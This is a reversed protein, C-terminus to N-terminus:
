LNWYKVAENFDGILDIPRKGDNNEVNDDAGNSLLLEVTKAWRYNTNGYNKLLNFNIKRDVLLNKVKNSIDQMKLIIPSRKCNNDVIDFGNNLLDFINKIGNMSVLHLVTNGNNNKINVNASKLLVENIEYLCKAAIHIATNGDNNQINVDAHKKMLVRVFDDKRLEVATHLLTWGDKDQINVDDLKDILIEFAKCCGRLVTSHLLSVDKITSNRFSEKLDNSKIYYNLLLKFVKECFYDSYISILLTAETIYAGNNLLIKVVDLHKFKVAFELATPLNRSSRVNIFKREMLENTRYSLAVNWELSDKEFCVDPFNEIEDPQNELLLKVIIYLGEMSAVHLPTIPLYIVPQWDQDIEMWVEVPPLSFNMINELLHKILECKINDVKFDAFLCNLFRRIVRYKDKILIQKFLFEWVKIDTDSSTNLKSYIFDALFYEAFTRHVFVPKSDVVRAIIGTGEEGSGIEEVKKFIENLELENVFLKIDNSDLLSYAALKRNDDLFQKYLLKIMKNRRPMDTNIQMKQKIYIEFFKIHIFEHYLYNLNNLVEKYEDFISFETGSDYWEKFKRQFVIALMNIQLPISVFSRKVHETSESFLEILGTVYLNSREDDICWFKKLYNQQDDKTFPELCYSFVGLVNELEEYISYPRTSIWIKCRSHKLIKLLELVEEKYDPSIEDYGDFFFIIKGKNYFETFVQAEFWCVNDFKIDMDKICIKHDEITITISKLITEADNKLFIKYIFKILAEKKTYINHKLEKFDSSYNLLNIKLVLLSPDSYKKQLAINTLLMSKGMGPEAAIIVEKDNISEQACSPVNQSDAGHILEGICLFSDEEDSSYDFSAFHQIDKVIFTRLKSLDGRSQQWVFENGVKRLVHINRNKYDNCLKKFVDRNDSILLIDRNDESNILDEKQDDKVILFKSTAKVIAEMLKVTRSLRRPGIYYEKIDNYKDDELGKGIEIRDNSILMCLVEGSILDEANEEILSRLSVEKGQFIVVGVKNLLREQSEGTLDTLNNSKDEFDTRQTKELYDDLEREIRGKQGKPTIIIIKKKSNQGLVEIFTKLINEEESSNLEIILLNRAPNKFASIPDVVTGQKEDSNLFKEINEFEEISNNFEFGHNQQINTEYLLNSSVLGLSAIEGKADAFFRKLDSDTLYYSKAKDGNKEYYRMWKYMFNFFHYYTSKDILNFEEGIMEKMKTELDVESPQEVAFVLKDLFDGMKDICDDLSLEVKGRKLLYDLFKFKGKKPVASLARQFIPKLEAFIEEKQSKSFKYMKGGLNMVPDEAEEEEFFNQTKKDFSANTCIIMDMLDEDEINEVYKHMLYTKFYKQLSYNSDSESKLDDINIEKKGSHSHKAQLFRYKTKGEHEYRFVLDDFNEWENDCKETALSFKVGSKWAVGAKWAFLLLLKLQYDFGEWSFKGGGPTYSKNAFYSPIVTENDSMDLKSLSSDEETKLHYGTSFSTISPKDQEDM